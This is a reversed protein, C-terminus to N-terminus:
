RNNFAPIALTTLTTMSQAPLDLEVKGDHVELPTLEKFLDERTTHVINLKQIQAPIGTIVLKRAWLQNGLHLTYGRADDGHKPHRFASVAIGQRDSSFSVADSGAPTLDCFQKQFCLRPTILWRGGKEPEREKDHILLSYDDTFEWFLIAQPKAYQLLRQYQVMERVGYDFNQFRGDKWAFPDVGAETVYLPLKLKDALAPWASYDAPSANGWSHVALAATAKVADSEHAVSDAFDLTQQRPNSLDGLLLKTKLGLRHIEDNLKKLLTAHESPSFKVKIGLDPENFSFYDPEAQYKEKAYLLYTTICELVEPLMEPKFHNGDGDANKKPADYMWGPLSWVSAVYPIKRQSLERMLAFERRLRTEPQDRDMLAKWDTKAPDDNDNVPEWENLSACTRAMALNLNELTYRAVPSEIQFAYNGGFGIFPYRVDDAKLAAHATDDTVGAPEITIQMSTSDTKDLTGPHLMVFASFNEGYQRQDKILIWTPRSLTVTAWMKSASDVFMFHSSYVQALQTNLPTGVPLEGERRGVTYAGGAFQDEPVDIWFFVGEIDTLTRSTVKVDFTLKDKASTIKQEVDYNLGTANSLSPKWTREGTSLKEGLKSSNALSVYDKWDVSPIRLDTQIDLWGQGLGIRKLRGYADIDTEEARSSVSSAALLGLVILAQFGLHSFRYHPAM